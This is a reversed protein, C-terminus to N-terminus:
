APCRRWARYYTKENRATKSKRDALALAKLVEDFDVGVNAPSGDEKRLNLAADSNLNSRGIAVIMCMQFLIVANFLSGGAVTDITEDVIKILEDAKEESGCIENLMRRTKPGIM